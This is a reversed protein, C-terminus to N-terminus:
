AAHEDLRGFEHLGVAAFAGVDGDVALLEDGGGPSEALHVERQAADFGVEGVPGGVREVVVAVGVQSGVVDEGVRREVDAVPAAFAEAVVGAPFVAGWWGPVGVERPDLVHDVMEGGGAGGAEHEGVAGHGGVLGAFALDALADDFGVEDVAHDREGALEEVGGLDGDAEPEQGLVLVVAAFAVPAAFHQEDVGAVEAGHDGADLALEGGVVDGLDGVGVVGPAAFGVGAGVLVDGAEALACREVVDAFM